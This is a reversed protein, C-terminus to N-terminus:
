EGQALELIKKAREAHEEDWSPAGERLVRNAWDVENEIADVIEQRLANVAEERTPYEEDVEHWVYGYHQITYTPSQGYSWTEKISWHCDRDKHHDLSVIKYWTETLQEITPGM